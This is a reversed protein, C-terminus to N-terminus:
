RKKGDIIKVIKLSKFKVIKDIKKNPFNNIYWDPFNLVNSTKCPPKCLVVIADGLDLTNDDLISYGSIELFYKPPTSDGTHPM